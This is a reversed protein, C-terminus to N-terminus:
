INLERLMLAQRTCKCIVADRQNFGEHLFTVIGANPRSRSARTALVTTRSRLTDGAFFWVNDAETVTRRIEHEFIRGIAFQEFHLGAM